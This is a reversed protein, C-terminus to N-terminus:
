EREPAAVQSSPQHRSTGQGEDNMIWLVLKTTNGQCGGPRILHYANKLDRVWLMARRVLMLCIEAIAVYKVRFAEAYFNIPQADTVLRRLSPTAKPVAGIALICHQLLHLREVYELSGAAFWEALVLMLPGRRAKVVMMMMEGM